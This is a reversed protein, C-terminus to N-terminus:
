GYIQNESTVTIRDQIHLSILQRANLVAQRMKGQVLMAGADQNKRSCLDLMGAKKTESLKKSTV